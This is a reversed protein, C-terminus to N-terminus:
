HQLSARALTASRRAPYEFSASSTVRQVQWGWEFGGFVNVIEKGAADKIGTDQVLFAEGTWRSTLDQATPGVFKQSADTFNVVQSGYISTLGGLIYYPNARYSNDLYSGPQPTGNAVQIWQLPKNTPVAQSGGPDYVVYVEGGFDLVPFTPTPEKVFVNYSLVTFRDQGRLGGVYNFSYYDGFANTLVQNFNIAPDSPVGEYVPDPSDGPQGFSVLSIRWSEGNDTFEVSPTHGGITMDDGGPWGTPQSPQYNVVLHEAQATLAPSQIMSLSALFAAATTVTRGPSPRYRSV